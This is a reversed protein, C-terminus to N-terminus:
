WDPSEVFRYLLDLSREHPDQVRLSETKHLENFRLTDLVSDEGVGPIWLPLLGQLLEAFELTFM